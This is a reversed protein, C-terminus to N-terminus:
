RQEGSYHIKATSGLQSLLLVTTRISNFYLSQKTSENPAHNQEDHPAYPVVISPIGLLKTFVYDPTTAALSPVLLPARAFGQAVADRVFAAYPHDIRTRSAPQGVLQRVDIHDLGQEHIFRKIGAVIKQPDQDGVLRIDIKVTAQNPIITKIGDGVYGGSFGAVNLNPRCLLREYFAQGYRETLPPVGLELALGADDIPLQALAARESASLVPIGQEFEPLLMRGDPTVLQSILWCLDYVPNPAIGGFNGSHLVRRAGHANLELCVAGRAGFLLVPQDGPFMPGDSYFSLDARLQDRHANVFIPLNKSGTEEEGEILLKVKIPLAGYLQRFVRLAQIHAMIQGKNDGAGRGYIRDGSITPEFPPTAWSQPDDAPFVDYHGYILLTFPPNDLDNEAYIIPPGDTPYSQATLGAQQLASILFATAEAMGQGTMSISPIRIFDLLPQLLADQQQELYGDFRADRM